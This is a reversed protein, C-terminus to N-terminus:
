FKKIIHLFVQFKKKKKTKQHRKLTITLCFENELSRVDTHFNVFVYTNKMLM